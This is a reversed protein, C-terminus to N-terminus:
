AFCGQRRMYELLEPMSGIEGIQSLTISVSSALPTNEFFIRGCAALRSQLTNGAGEVGLPHRKFAGLITEAVVISGIPGLHQGGGCMAEFLIFFPLPPDRALRAVDGDDSWRFDAGQLWKTLRPEWEDFGEVVADFGRSRLERCLAGASLTGAYCSSILDRQALGPRDLRPVRALTHLGGAYRLDIVQSLNRGSAEGEFFFLDWDVFWNPRELDLPVKAPKQQSSSLLAGTVDQRKFMSNVDYVDRVM